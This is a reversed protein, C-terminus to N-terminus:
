KELNIGQKGVIDLIYRIGLDKCFRRAQPVAGSDPALGLLMELSDGFKKELYENFVVRSTISQLKRYVSEIQKFHPSITLIRTKDTHDVLHRYARCSLPERLPVGTSKDRTKVDQRLYPLHSTIFEVSSPGSPDNILFEYLHQLKVIHSDPLYQLDEPIIEGKEEELYRSDPPLCLPSIFLLVNRNRVNQNVRIQYEKNWHRHIYLGQDDFEELPLDKTALHAHAKRALDMSGMDSLVVVGLYNNKM